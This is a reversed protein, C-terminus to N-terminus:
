QLKGDMVDNRCTFWTRLAELDTTTPRTCLIDRKQQRAYFERMSIGLKRTHQSDREDAFVPDEGRLHLQRLENEESKSYLWRITGPPVANMEDLLRIPINMRALYDRM